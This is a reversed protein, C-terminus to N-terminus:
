MLLNIFKDDQGTGPKDQQKKMAKILKENAAKLDVMM